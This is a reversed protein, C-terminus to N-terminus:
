LALYFFETRGMSPDPPCASCNTFVPSCSSIDTDLVRMWNDDQFSLNKALFFILKELLRPPGGAIQNCPVISDASIRLNHRHPQTCYMCILLSLSLGSFERQQRTNSVFSGLLAPNLPRPRPM